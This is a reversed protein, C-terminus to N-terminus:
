QPDVDAQVVISGYKKGAQLHNITEQIYKKAKNFSKSREIKIIIHKIYYRQVKGVLPYQPGLVRNRGFYLHLQHIFTNCYEDLVDKNKHKIILKILRAFPPYNFEKREEIQNRYMEEFQNNVVNKLIPHEPHTTQIIVQGQKKSRGSRGSVQTMLQFSREHARFDPFNLLNDANLIGVTSVNEFNLGKSIMQTGILIDIQHNEFEEILKEYAKKSRTTDMDMRKIRAQEFFLQIEDEIKETGFGRTELTPSGCAECQRPINIQYGCYHCILKQPKKHYTLSVDCNKCNPIWGCTSCEIFPSFGRRNQFLIIQEHNHLAQKMSRLLVSSFHSRMLNKKGAERINVIQISPLQISKYRKSIYAIGYKEREVNHYSEVSPTATGLIVRAQYYGALYIASERANYRPAPDFQKYTNEHEEDVIVLGLNTFPLFVSSRVGLIVSYRDDGKSLVRNWVETREAESFKSHYIGVQNGFVTKLRHIIQTTLAIEPLLYLVQKGQQLQENILHLYVETKGSSTVGYLLVVQKQKFQEKITNLAQQQTDNLTQLSGRQQPNQFFRSVEKEQIQLYRKDLLPKLTSAAVGAQRLLESKKMEQDKLQQMSGTAQLFTMLLQTQKPANQLQYIAQNIAEKSRVKPHLTIYEEKKPTFKDRIQEEAYLYNKDILSKVYSLTEEKELVSSLKQVHIGPNNEVVEIVLEENPSLERTSEPRHHLFVQTESELRLGSPIAAKFVEGTTCMYYQAMWDWFRFQINHIIPKQDLISILPKVSYNQPPTKHLTKILASYYKRKGFQVLCRKGTEAENILEPPVYYTYLKALPLPLIVNAYLHHENM